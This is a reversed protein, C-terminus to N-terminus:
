RPVRANQGDLVAEREQRQSRTVMPIFLSLNKNSGGTRKHGKVKICVWYMTKKDYLTTRASPSPKTIYILFLSPALDTNRPGRSVKREM